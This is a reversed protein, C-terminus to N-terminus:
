PRKVHDIVASPTQLSSEHHSVRLSVQAENIYIVADPWDRRILRTVHTLNALSAGHYLREDGLFIGSRVAVSVGAVHLTFGAPM